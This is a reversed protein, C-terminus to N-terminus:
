LTIYMLIHIFIRSLVVIAVTLPDQKASIKQFSILIGKERDM